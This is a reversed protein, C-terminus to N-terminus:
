DEQGKSQVKLFVLALVIILVTMVTSIAAGYGIQNKSFFNQWAFYSPVTTANGPGGKTLVFIPGFVKLATITTTLLVVYIEPKLQPVIVHRFRQLWSAGDLSAAETLSPDTRSLGAMFIVLCYGVQFWVLVAMVAALATSPQGLWNSKLAGLGAGDLVTNLVGGSPLLIWGWLIGVVTIPLIQPLYFGARFFSAIRPGFKNGIFDYLLAALLLSLATPIIAMAVIMAISNVFSVWFNSDQLLRTFNELGVFTPTGIGAWKTFSLVVNTVFPLVVVVALGTIGPLLYLLYGRRNRSTRLGAASPQFQTNM